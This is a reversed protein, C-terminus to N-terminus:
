CSVADSCSCCCHGALVAMSADSISSASVVTCLSRSETPDRMCTVQQALWTSLVFLYSPQRCGRDLAMVM